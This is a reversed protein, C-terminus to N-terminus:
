SYGRMLYARKSMEAKSLRGRERQYESSDVQKIVGGADLYAQIAADRETQEAAKKKDFSPRM